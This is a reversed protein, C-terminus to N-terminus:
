DTEKQFFIAGFNHFLGGGGGGCFFMIDMVSKSLNLDM